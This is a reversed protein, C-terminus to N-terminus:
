ADLKARELWYSKIIGVVNKLDDYKAPKTFFTNCGLRYSLKIDALDNSTTFIIVPIHKLQENDKIERLAERGDKKPMNLDLLVIAPQEPAALLADLLEEGNEFFSIDRGGIGCDILAEEILLRDDADDEAVLLQPGRLGLGNQSSFENNV